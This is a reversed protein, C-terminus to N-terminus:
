KLLSSLETNEKLFCMKALNLLETEHFIHNGSLYHWSYKNQLYEQIFPIQKYFLSVKLWAAQRQIEAGCNVLETVWAKM